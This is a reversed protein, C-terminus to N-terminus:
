GVSGKIRKEIDKIINPISNWLNFHYDAHIYRNYPMDHCVTYMVKNCKEITTPKDEIIVDGELEWKKNSFVIQKDSIYPYFKKMWKIKQVKYKEEDTWPATAITVDNFKNMDKLISQSDKLPSLSDWFNMDICVGNMIKKPNSAIIFKAIDWDGEHSYSYEDFDYGLQQVYSIFHQDFDNLVGDMDVLIKM